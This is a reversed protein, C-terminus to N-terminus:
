FYFKLGFQIEREGQASNIEGFTASQVARDPANFEPTNSVNFLEARFEFRKSETVRFTKQLSLDVNKLGPGRVVGIGSNGFTGAVPLRFASADFWTRGPGAERRGAGDAIRDARPGRSTTGSRDLSTITLPFGGRLTMIGSVQWNGLIGNLAPGWGGGYRKNRGLPLDYIASYVFMHAADFYTPGWESKQDYVNQWYAAQAAAQGGEGFFGVADSMGKSWTYAAQYELGRGLRRRVSVQLSDYRQNGNAETGSIQAIQALLPNGSLYQSLESRGPALLRRQSYAMPVILHAGHQGIYGASFVTDEPLQREFIFSWQQVNAPRVEPDWLRINVGRFPDAARLVTLGQDTTSGVAAQGEYITEFETNFPPNLPLRLNVGTGEMFSSITYAGRLVTKRGLFGPTWAFGVRPQWDKTYTAYLGRNPGDQGALLMKGSFPEFNSQRDKVEYLPTHYEWRM